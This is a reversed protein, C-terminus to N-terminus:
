RKLHSAHVLMDACTSEISPSLRQRWHTLIADIDAQDRIRAEVALNSSASVVKTYLLEELGIVQLEVHGFNASFSQQVSLEFDLAGISTLLDVEKTTQNPLSILKKPLQLMEVTLRFNPAPTFSALVPQLREANFQTRSVLLDLDNTERNMGHARMAMGGVVVFDINAALLAEAVSSQYASLTTM